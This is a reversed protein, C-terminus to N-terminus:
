PKKSLLHILPYSGGGTQYFAVSKWKKNLFQILNGCSLQGRPKRRFVQSAQKRCSEEKLWNLVDEILSSPRVCFCKGESNEWILWGGKAIRALIVNHFFSWFNPCVDVEWVLTLDVGLEGKKLLSWSSSFIPCVDEGLSPHVFFPPIHPRKNLMPAPYTSCMSLLAPQPEPSGTNANPLPVNQKKREDWRM